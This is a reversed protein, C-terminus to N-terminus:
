RVSLLNRGNATGDRLGDTTAPLLFTSQVAMAWAHCLVGCPSDASERM